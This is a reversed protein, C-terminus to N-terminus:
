EAGGLTPNGALPLKQARGNQSVEVYPGWTLPDPRSEPPYGPMVRIQRGRNEPDSFVTGGGNASPKVAWHDPIRQRVEEPTSGRLEEPDFDKAGGIAKLPEPNAKPEGSPPGHGSLWSKIKDILGALRGSENLLKRLSSLLSKLWRAIRAGWSACLTAVQEAVLPAALGATAVLEAAYVILRSVVTAVADRVMMRVTGILTGAGEIILAMAESAQGLARLSQERQAAWSRYAAAASGSWDAVDWRVSRALGDAELALSSSTKRWNQAHAAIQAPDGALWDLAESLPKVHEILWAIGYQLLAGVPDSVFALGDLGAGAVGLTGDVWSGSRVGHAILEIDEAIWVGAWPSPEVLPGTTM